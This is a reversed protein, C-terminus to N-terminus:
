ECLSNQYWCIGSNKARITRVTEPVLFKMSFHQLDGTKQSMYTSAKNERDQYNPHKPVSHYYIVTFIHDQGM